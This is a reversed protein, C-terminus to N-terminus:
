GLREAQAKAIMGALLERQEILARVPDSPTGSAELCVWGIYDMGVLLRILEEYPYDRSDLPRAHLAPGLRKKLLNFNYKLGQGQLDQANSNWLLVANSRDAYDIIQKMIPPPACQGHCELRIQQGYDAAYAAALNVTKGIQEITKEPAVGKPLDNPKVRVGSGGVDHSLKVFAKVTEVAKRLESPDPYDFQQNSGLGLLKVPSDEFRKKVDKRKEASLSPEVGHAHTTRLDVMLVGSKECREILTPLDWDKAWLYTVLGLQIQSGPRGSVARQTKGAPGAAIAASSLVITQKLFSRRSAPRM